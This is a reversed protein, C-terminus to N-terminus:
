RAATLWAFAANARSSSGHAGGCDVQILHPKTGSSGILGHHADNKRPMTAPIASTSTTSFRRPM